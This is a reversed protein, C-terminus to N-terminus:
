RCSHDFYEEVDMNVKVWDSKKFRNYVYESIFRDLPDSLVILFDWQVNHDDVVRPAAYGTYLWAKVILALFIQM